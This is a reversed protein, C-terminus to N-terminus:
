TSDWAPASVLWSLSVVVGLCISGSLIAMGSVSLPLPSKSCTSNGDSPSICSVKEEEEEEEEENPSAACLVM